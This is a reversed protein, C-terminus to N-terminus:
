AKCANELDIVLRIYSNNHLRCLSNYIITPTDDMSETRATDTLQRGTAAPEASTSYKLLKSYIEKIEAVENTHDIMRVTADQVPKVYKAPPVYERTLAQLLKLLIKSLKSSIERSLERLRAPYRHILRYLSILVVCGLPDRLLVITVKGAGCLHVRVSLRDFVAISRGAASSGSVISGFCEM